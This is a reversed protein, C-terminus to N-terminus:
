PKPPRKLRRCAAIERSTMKKLSLRCEKSFAGSWARSKARGITSAAKGAAKVETTEVSANRYSSIDELNLNRQLADSSCSREGVKAGEGEDRGQGEYSKASVADTNEM